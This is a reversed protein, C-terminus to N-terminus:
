CYVTKAKNIGNTLTIFHVRWAFGRRECRGQGMLLSPIALSFFVHIYIYDPTFSTAHVPTVRQSCFQESGGGM